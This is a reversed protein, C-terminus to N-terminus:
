HKLRKLSSETRSGSTSCGACMTTGPLEPQLFCQSGDGKTQTGHGTTIVSDNIESRSKLCNNLSSSILWLILFFFFACQPLFPLLREVKRGLPSKYVGPPCPIQGKSAVTLM